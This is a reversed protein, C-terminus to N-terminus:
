MINAMLICRKKYLVIKIFTEGNLSQTEPAYVWTGIFPDLDNNLDKYYANAQRNDWDDLPFIPSQANCNAYVFLLVVLIQLNKMTKTKLL